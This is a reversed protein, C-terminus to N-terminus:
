RIFNSEDRKAEKLLKRVFSKFVEPNLGALDCIKDFYDDMNNVVRSNLKTINLKMRRLDYELVARNFERISNESDESNHLPILCREELNWEDWHGPRITLKRLSM